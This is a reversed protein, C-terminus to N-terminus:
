KNYNRIHEPIYEDEKFDNITYTKYQVVIEEGYKDRYPARDNASICWCLGPKEPNNNIKAIFNSTKSAIIQPLMNEEYYPSLVDYIIVFDGHKYYGYGYTDESFYIPISVDNKIWEGRGYLSDSKSQKYLIFRETDSLIVELANYTDFEFHNKNIIYYTDGNSDTYMEEYKHSEGDFLCSSFNIISIIIIIFLCVTKLISFKKM